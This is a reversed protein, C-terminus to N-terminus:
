LKNDGSGSKLNFPDKAEKSRFEKEKEDKKVQFEQKKEEKKEQLEDKKEEKLEQLEEGPKNIHTMEEYKEHHITALERDVESSYNGVGIGIMEKLNANVTHAVERIKHGLSTAEGIEPKTEEKVIEDYKERHETAKERDVESSYDGLGIGVNEKMTANINHGVEQIKHAYIGTSGTEVNEKLEEKKESM